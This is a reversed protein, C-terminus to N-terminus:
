NETGRDLISYKKRGRYVMSNRAAYARGRTNVVGEVQGTTENYSSVPVDGCSEIIGRRLRGGAKDVCWIKSIIPVDTEEYIVM